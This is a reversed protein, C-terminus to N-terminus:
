LYQAVVRGTTLRLPFEDDPEEAPPEYAVANFRARGGPLAFRGDEFMRPTGPHDIDPCPWAIPGERELREYTIGAYDARGGASARRLEEFVDRPEDYDFLEGHGLRR